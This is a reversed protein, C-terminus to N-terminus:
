PIRLVPSDIMGSPSSCCISTCPIASRIAYTIPALHVASRHLPMERRANQAAVPPPPPQRGSRTAACVGSGGCFYATRKM